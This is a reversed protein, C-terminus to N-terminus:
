RGAAEDRLRERKLGDVRDFDGDAYILISSYYLATAAIWNDNEGLRQGKRLQRKDLEGARYAIAESLPIKRLHRLFVRVATESGGAALEGVTVASCALEEGKKRGLFARIPGIERLALERELGILVSTDLLLM